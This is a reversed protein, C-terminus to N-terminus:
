IVSGHAITEDGRVDEMLHYITQGCEAHGILVHQLGRGALAVHV